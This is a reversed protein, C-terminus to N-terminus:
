QSHPHPASSFIALKGEWEEGTLHPSGGRGGGEKIDGDSSSTLKCSFMQVVNWWSLICPDTGFNNHHLCVELQFKHLLLNLFQVDTM